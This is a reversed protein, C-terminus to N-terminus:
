FAVINITQCSSVHGCAGHVGPLLYELALIRGMVALCLSEVLPVRMTVIIVRVDHYAHGRYLRGEARQTCGSVRRM